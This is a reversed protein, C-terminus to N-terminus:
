QFSTALLHPKRDRLDLLMQGFLGNAWSFWQRTWASEDHSSVSEHMLGLGDTSSVLQRLAAAIEYDDDTTMIQVVLSMPWAMGTGVHPGGTGNLVPGTMYYPNARSLVLRRTNRYVPDHRDVYGLLPASLLSPINADDMLNHSGFGDVEYAYVDGYVPHAVRGYREIGVRITAAFNTMRLALEHFYRSRHGQRYNSYDDDAVAAADVLPSERLSDTKAPARGRGLQAMIPACAALYRALMMNAPVFLQHTCADDSPRFASRVMGTGGQVPPGAGGNPLTETAVSTPRQFQYPSVQPRGDPGYTGKTMEEATAMTAEVALVWTSRFESDDGDNGDDGGDGDKRYVKGFFAGDDTAAYYDYSLQLFAALSDLEYKCEFVVDHAVPPYVIDGGGFGGTVTLGSEVPPRFANCHPSNQIYRAQLNITGRFLSALTSLGEDDKTDKKGKKGKPRLLSRYSQLQNASDRLWMANIDGTTVFTLEEDTTDAGVGHWAIATDLTNPFCNEFLRFLDPDRVLKRMADITDEVEPVKFRRCEPPPRQYPLNFRGGSFPQHDRSTAYSTYDPCGVTDAGDRKSQRSNSDLSDHSDHSDDSSPRASVPAVAAAAAAAVGVVRGFRVM